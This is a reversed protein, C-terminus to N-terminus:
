DTGTYVRWSTEVDEPSMGPFKAKLKDKYGYYTIPVKSKAGTKHSVGFLPRGGWHDHWDLLSRNYNNRNKEQNELMYRSKEMTYASWSELYSLIFENAEPTNGLSIFTALARKADGETQPGKQKALETLLNKMVVAQMAESSAASDLGLKEANIGLGAAISAIKNKVPELAGTKLGGQFLARIAQTNTSIEESTAIATGIEGYKKAFDGAAVRSFSTDGVTGLDSLPGDTITTSGDANVVIRQTNKKSPPVGGLYTKQGNPNDLDVVYQGAKGQAGAPLTVTKNRPKRLSLAEQVKMASLQEPSRWDRAANMANAPAYSAAALQAINPNVPGAQTAGMMGPQEMVAPQQLQSMLGPQIALAQAGAEQQNRRELAVNRAAEQRMMM